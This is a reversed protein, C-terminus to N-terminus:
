NFVIVLLTAIFVITDGLLEIRIGFWRQASIFNLQASVNKDVFGHFCRTFTEEKRFSRITTSGEIEEALMAQLPSRSLAVIGDLVALLYSGNSIDDM